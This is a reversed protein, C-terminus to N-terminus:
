RENFFNSLYFRKIHFWFEQVFKIFRRIQFNSGDCTHSQWVINIQSIIPRKQKKLSRLYRFWGRSVRSHSRTKWELVIGFSGSSDWLISRSKQITKSCIELYSPNNFLIWLYNKMNRLSFMCQPGENSGNHGRMLVTKALCNYHFTM